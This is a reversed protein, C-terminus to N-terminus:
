RGELAQRIRVSSRRAVTLTEPQGNFLVRAVDRSETQVERVAALQVILSRSVRLFQPDPLVRDWEVMPRRVFAPPEGAVHVRTYNEESEIHTIRRLPVVRMSGEERLAVVDDSAMRAPFPQVAPLAAPSVTLAARVRSLAAAIRDPHVPKVLYDLANIEFARVAYDNHATVFVIAPSGTLRPLLDFGSAARLDVDLFVVGPSVRRCLDAASEIDSAEGVVSVGAHPALLTIMRERAPAEDDVILVRLPDIM